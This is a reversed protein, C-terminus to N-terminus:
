IGMDKLRAEVWATMEDDPVGQTMGEILLDAIAQEKASVPPPAAIPQRAYDSADTELDKVDELPFQKHLGVHFSKPKDTM